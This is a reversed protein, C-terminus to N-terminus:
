RPPLRRRSEAYTTYILHLGLLLAIAFGALQLGLRIAAYGAALIVLIGATQVWDAVFLGLISDIVARLAKM